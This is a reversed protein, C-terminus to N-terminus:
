LVEGAPKWDNYRVEQGVLYAKETELLRKLSKLERAKAYDFTDPINQKWSALKRHEDRSADYTDRKAMFSGTIKYRGNYKGTNYTIRIAATEDETSQIQIMRDEVKAQLLKIYQGLRDRSVEFPLHMAGFCSATQWGQGPREYGHHAITGREALIPRGCIQCTKAVAARAEERIRAKSKPKAQLPAAKIADRDARLVNAIKITAPTGYKGWLAPHKDKNWVHLDPVNHKLYFQYDAEDDWIWRSDDDAFTRRSWLAYDLAEKVLVDYARNLYDLADKRHAEATFGKDFMSLAAVHYGRAQAIAEPKQIYNDNPM